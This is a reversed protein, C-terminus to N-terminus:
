GAVVFVQDGVEKVQYEPLPAPPPGSVVAGSADFVAAHCPCLFRGGTSDWTVLCGLHTCAASFARFGGRQRVVIVAKGGLQVMTSQGPKLEAAGGVEVRAAGGGKAAPWLYLLAPLAVVASVAASGLGVAWNLFSRRGPKERTTAATQGEPVVYAAKLRKFMVYLLGALCMCFAWLPVLLRYRLGLGAELEDLDHNVENCVANLEAIKEAVLENDLTHQLPSLAILHTRADELKFRASDVLLVGRSVEDLRTATWVYHREAEAIEDLLAFLTPLNEDEELEEHCELCAPLAATMIEKPDPHIAQTIQEPTPSPETSLLHAYREIMVGTPKTIRQIRHFHRGEGGGHCLVCGKHDEMEGHVSAAFHRADHEHCQGCVAGVTAFGPPMASHNGHCTACTPAGTDGQELLLRGHVSERYETTIEAPLDYEGMLAQDEHCTACMQTVNLPHTRSAPEDAALISHPMGHCDTCVAVREDQNAFLAQGHGSTKYRALQDTRLGYPNMREVDAHCDGCLAPIVTRPPRGVFSAGHDFASKSDGTKAVPQDPAPYSEAGGHCERCNLEQHVSAALQDRQEAHCTTCTQEAAQAACLGPVVVLMAVVGVLPLRVPM